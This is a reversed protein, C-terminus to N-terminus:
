QKSAMKYADYGGELNIVNKFGLASLKQQAKASRGGVKCYVYITKNKDIADFKKAFDTDFWNINVSKKLHGQEYEAPTRVDVLLANGMESPNFETIHNSAKQACSFNMM